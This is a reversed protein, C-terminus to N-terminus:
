HRIKTKIQTYELPTILNILKLNQVFRLNSQMGLTIVQPNTTNVNVFINSSPLYNTTTINPM